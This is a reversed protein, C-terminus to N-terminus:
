EFDLDDNTTAAVSRKDHWLNAAQDAAAGNTLTNKLAAFTSTGPVLADIVTNQVSVTGFSETLAANLDLFYKAALSFAPM